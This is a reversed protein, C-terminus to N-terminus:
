INLAAAARKTLANYLQETDEWKILNSHIIDFQRKVYYGSRCTYIVPKKLAEAYGAEYYVHPKYYTLDAIVLKSRRIEYFTESTVPKTYLSEDSFRPILNLDSVVKRLTKRCEAINERTSAIM